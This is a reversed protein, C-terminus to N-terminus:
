HYHHTLAADRCDVDALEDAIADDPLIQAACVAECDDIPTVVAGAVRTSSTSKFGCERWTLKFTPTVSSLTPVRCIASRSEGRPRPPDRRGAQSTTKM